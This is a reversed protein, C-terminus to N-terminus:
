SGILTETGSSYGSRPVSYAYLGASGPWPTPPLPAGGVAGPRVVVLDTTNRVTDSTLHAVMLGFQADMWRLRGRTSLM